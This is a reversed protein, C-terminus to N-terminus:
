SLNMWCIVIFDVDYKIILFACVFSSLFLSCSTKCSYVHSHSELILSASLSVFPLTLDVARLLGRLLGLPFLVDMVHSIKKFSFVKDHPM